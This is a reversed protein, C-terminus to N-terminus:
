EAPDFRLESASGSIVLQDDEVAVDELDELAQLFQAEQEMIQPPDCAMMTSVFETPWDDLEEDPEAFGIQNCGGTGTIAYGDITIQPAHGDVIEIEGDATQGSVLVWDGDANPGAGPSACGALALAAGLMLALAASLKLNMTPRTRTM